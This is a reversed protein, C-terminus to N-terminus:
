LIKSYIKFQCLHSPLLMASVHFIVSVDIAVRSVVRFSVCHSGFAPKEKVIKIIGEVLIKLVEDDLSVSMELLADLNNGILKWLALSEENM